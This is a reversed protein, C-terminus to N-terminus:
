LKLLRASTARTLAIVDYRGWVETKADLPLELHAAYTLGETELIHKMANHYLVLEVPLVRVDTFDETFAVKRKRPVNEEGRMYARAAEGVSWGRRAASHQLAGYTAECLAEIMGRDVSEPVAVVRHRFKFNDYAGRSAGTRRMITAAPEHGWCGVSLTWTASLPQTHGCHVVRAEPNEGSAVILENPAQLWWWIDKM